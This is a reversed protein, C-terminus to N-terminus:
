FLSVKLLDRKDFRPTHRLFVSNNEMVTVSIMRKSRDLKRSLFYSSLTFIALTVIQQGLQDDAPVTTPRLQDTQDPSIQLSPM